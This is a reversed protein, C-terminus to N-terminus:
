EDDAIRENSFAVAAQNEIYTSLNRVALDTLEDELYEALECDQKGTLVAGDPMEFGDPHIYAPYRMYSLYVKKPEFTGDTFYGLEDSSVTCFTEQFEFSPKYNDNNILVTVDAHKALDNNIYITRDECSGKDAKMYSDIYFMYQPKIDSIDATYKNLNSDSLELDLPHDKYEEILKELDQYRKKFGDLGLKYINNGDVKKKILQIQAENIALVKDEEPIQQHLNSSLKNLKQDIKYFLSEITIM